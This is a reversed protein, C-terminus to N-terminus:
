ARQAHPQTNGPPESVYLIIGKVPVSLLNYHGEIGDRAVVGEETRGGRMLFAM